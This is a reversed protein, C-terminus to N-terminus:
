GWREGSLVLEQTREIGRRDKERLVGRAGVSTQNPPKHQTHTTPNKHKPNQKQNKKKKKKKQPTKKKKQQTHPPPTQPNHNPHTTPPKVQPFFTWDASTGGRFNKGNEGKKPEWRKKLSLLLRFDERRVYYM